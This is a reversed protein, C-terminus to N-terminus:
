VSVNSCSAWREPSGLLTLGRVTRPSVCGPEGFRLNFHSTPEIAATTTTRSATMYHHSALRPRQNQLDGVLLDFDRQALGAPRQAALRLFREPQRDALMHQVDLNALCSEVCRLDRDRLPLRDLDFDFLDAVAHAHHAALLKKDGLFQRPRLRANIGHGRQDWRRSLHREVIRRKLLPHLSDGRHRRLLLNLRDHLLQPFEIRIVVPVLRM